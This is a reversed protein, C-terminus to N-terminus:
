INIYKTSKDVCSPSHPSCLLWHHRWPKLGPVLGKLYALFNSHPVWQFINNYALMLISVYLSSFNLALCPQYRYDLNPHSTSLSHNCFYLSTYLFKGPLKPKAVSEGSIVIRISTSVTSIEAYYKFHQNESSEHPFLFLLKMTTM